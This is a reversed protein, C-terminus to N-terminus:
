YKSFNYVPMTLIRELPAVRAQEYHKYAKGGQLKSQVRRMLKECNIM